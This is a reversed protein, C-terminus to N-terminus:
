IGRLLYIRGDGGSGDALFLRGDNATTMRYICCGTHPQYVGEYELQKKDKADFFAIGRSDNNVIIRDGVKCIITPESDANTTKTNRDEDAILGLNYANPMTKIDSIDLVIIGQKRDEATYYASTPAITAYIYPYDVTLDYTHVQSKLDVHNSFKFKWLRTPVTPDTIDYMYIGDGFGAAAYYVKDNLEFVQGGQMEEINSSDEPFDEEYILTPEEPTTIDFIKWGRMQQNAILLNNHMILRSVKKDFTIYKVTSLDSKNIVFLAGEIDETPYGATARRTGLYIYDGNIVMGTCTRAWIDPAFAVKLEVTPEVECSVDIKYINAHRALYMYKGEVAFQGITSSDTTPLKWNMFQPLRLSKKNIYQKLNKIFDTSISDKSIVLKEEIKKKFLTAVVTASTSTSTTMFYSANNPINIDSLTVYKDITTCEGLESSIFNNDSDFFVIPPYTSKTYVKISVSNYDSIDESKYSNGWTKQIQNGNVDVLINIGNQTLECSKTKIEFITEETEILKEITSNTNELQNLRTEFDVIWNNPSIVEENNKILEITNEINISFPITKLSYNLNNETGFFEIAVNISGSKCTDAYSLIWSFRIVEENHLLNTANEAFVGNSTSVIFRINKNLLDVGDYYRNIEFQLINSNTDGLVIKRDKESIVPVKEIIKIISHEETITSKVIKGDSNIFNNTM